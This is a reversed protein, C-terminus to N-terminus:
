QGRAGEERPAEDVHNGLLSASNLRETVFDLSMRERIPVARRRWIIHRSPALQVYLKLQHWRTPERAPRPRYM